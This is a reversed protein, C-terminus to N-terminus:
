VKLANESTRQTRLPLTELSRLLLWSSFPDLHSGLVMRLKKLPEVLAKAGSVGGGLLDSHGGCYKTLATITLDAGHKLPTQGFPGLFTYGLEEFIVGSKSPLVFEKASRAARKAVQKALSGGPAHDLTDSAADKLRRVSQRGRLQSLHAHLAGVNDSISKDNDNLVIILRKRLAGAHNIAELAMGGTLAGDGIIAVVNVKEGKLDRAVAMGLAASISTSAHSAGFTDYESEDRRLYGSIGGLTKLSRFDKRRGTVLKHPYAQHGIDWVLLDRPANFAIHLALTLEVAGLNPALHGGRLSVAEIIEQRIEEAVQDIETPTLQKLQDPSDIADLIRKM